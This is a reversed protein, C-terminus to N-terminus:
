PLPLRTASLREIRFIVWDGKDRRLSLRDSVAEGTFRPGAPVASAQADQTDDPASAPIWKDYDARFVPTPEPQEQTLSLGTVGYVSVSPEPDPRGESDWRDAPLVLSRGEYATTVRTIVFLNTVESIEQRGARGTVCAQMLGHDLSNMALYFARVVEQPGMGRTPRPALANSLVSGLVAGAVAVGAAVAAVLAWRKRWFAKRRLHTEAGGRFTDREKAIRKRDEESLERYPPRSQLLALAEKWKELSPGPGRGRALGDVVLTSIEPLLGPVELHPPTVRLGRAQEHIEEESGGTFPFRGTIVRSVIAAVAFSAPDAQVTDPPNISEFTDRNAEFPRQARIEGLVSPSLFLVGGAEPFVVGDSQLPFPPVGADRAAVLAEVLRGIWPLAQERPLTVVEALTRGPQAPGHLLVQGGRETVGLFRWEVVRGDRVLWGPTGKLALIRSLATGRGAAGIPVALQRMGKELIESIM